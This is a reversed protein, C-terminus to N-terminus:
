NGGSPALHLFLHLFLHIAAAAVLCAIGVYDVLMVRYLETNYNGVSFMLYVYGIMAIAAMVMAPPRYVPEFVSYIIFGGLVGFLIARHRLLIVLDNGFLDIGYAAAIRDASVVGLVPLFNIVGVILLLVSGLVAM